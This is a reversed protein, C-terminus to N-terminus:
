WKKKESIIFDSNKNPANKFFIKRSFDSIKKNNEKRECFERKILPEKESLDIKSLEKSFVDIIAKASKKIQKKEKESVKRFILDSTM